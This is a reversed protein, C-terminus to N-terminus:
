DIVEGAKKLFNVSINGQECSGCSGDVMGSLDTEIGIPTDILVTEYLDSYGKGSVEFTCISRM